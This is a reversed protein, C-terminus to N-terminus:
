DERVFDPFLFAGLMVHADINRMTATKTNGITKGRQLWICELEHSCCWYRTSLSVVCFYYSFVLVTYVAFCCSFLILVSTGHLCRFLVFIIQSCWYRTSLSVVRFYNSFCVANGQDCLYLDSSRTLCAALRGCCPM